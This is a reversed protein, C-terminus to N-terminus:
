IAPQRQFPGSGSPSVSVDGDDGGDGGACGGGDGWLGQCHDGSSLTPPLSPTAM